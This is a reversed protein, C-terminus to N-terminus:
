GGEHLEDLEKMRERWMEGAEGERDTVHALELWQRTAEYDRRVREHFWWVDGCRSMAAFWYCMLWIAKDDREYLLTRVDATIKLIPSLYHALKFRGLHHPIRAMAHLAPRYIANNSKREDQGPLSTSGDLDFFRNWREPVQYDDLCGPPKAYEGYELFMRSLFMLGPQLYEGTSRMLHRLGEQVGLWGLRNEHISFVWSQRLDAEVSSDRSQPLIFALMNLLLASLFMANVGPQGLVEAPTCILQLCERLAIDQCEHEAIRHQRTPSLHRLHAATM